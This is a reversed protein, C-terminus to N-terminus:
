SLMFVTRCSIHIRLWVSNTLTGIIVPIHADICLKANDVAIEPRSFEIAVDATQLSGKNLQNFNESNIKLVIQHGRENGAIEIEKGMKGYGLLAIKM